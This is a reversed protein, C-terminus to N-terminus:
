LKETLLQNTPRDTQGCYPNGSKPLNGELLIFKKYPKKSESPKGAAAVLPKGTSDFHRCDLTNPWQPSQLAPLVLPDM